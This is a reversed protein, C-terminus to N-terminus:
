RLSPATSSISGEDNSIKTEPNEDRVYPPDEHPFRGRSTGFVTELIKRGARKTGPIRADMM